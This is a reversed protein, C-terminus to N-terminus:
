VDGSSFHFGLHHRQRQCVGLLHVSAAEQSILKHFGIPHLVVLGSGSGDVLIGEPEASGRVDRLIQDPLAVLLAPAVEAVRGHSALSADEIMSEPLAGLSQINFILDVCFDLLGVDGISVTMPDLRLPLRVLPLLKLQV